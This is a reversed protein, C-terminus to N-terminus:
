RQCYGFPHPFIDDISDLKENGKFCVQDEIEQSLRRLGVLVEWEMDPSSLDSNHVLLLLSAISCEIPESGIRVSRRGHSDISYRLVINDQCRLRTYGFLTMVEIAELMVIDKFPVLGVNTQGCCGKCERGSEDNVSVVQGVRFEIEVVSPVFFGSPYDGVLVGCLLGNIFIIWLSFLLRFRQLNVQM